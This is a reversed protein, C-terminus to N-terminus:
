GFGRKVYLRWGVLYAMKGIGIVVAGNAVDNAVGGRHLSRAEWGCPGRRCRRKRSDYDDRVSRVVRAMFDLCWGRNLTVESRTPRLLIKWSVEFSKDVLEVLVCCVDCPLSKLDRVYGHWSCLAAGEMFRVCVDRGVLAVLPNSLMSQVYM